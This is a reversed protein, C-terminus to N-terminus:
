LSIVFDASDDDSPQIVWPETDSLKPKGDANTIYKGTTTDLLASRNFLVYYGGLSNVLVELCSNDYNKLHLVDKCHVMICGEPFVSSKTDGEVIEAYAHLLIDTRKRERISQIFKDNPWDGPINLQIACTKQNKGQLNIGTATRGDAYTFCNM